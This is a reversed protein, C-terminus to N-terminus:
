GTQWGSAQYNAVDQPSVCAWVTIPIGEGTSGAFFWMRTYGGQCTDGNQIIYTSYGGPPPPPANVGVPPPISPRLQSFAAQEIETAGRALSQGLEGVVEARALLNGYWRVLQAPRHVAGYALNRLFQNWDVSGAMTRTRTTAEMSRCPPM